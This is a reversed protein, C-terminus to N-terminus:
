KVPMGTDFDDISKQNKKKWYDRIGDEGKKSAWDHLQTRDERFEMFPVAFGCSSQVLDIKMDIIQRTGALTPFESVLGAFEADEHHYISAHGYLRLIEPRKEFSCFMITMRDNKLLHAATENGSGTMNLWIVRNPGMVRLSDMGKPSVNIRGDCAATGVFFLHQQRIFEIQSDSLADFRNGM